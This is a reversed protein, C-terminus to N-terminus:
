EGVAKALPRRPLQVVDILGYDKAEDSSMWFDRDTDEGIREISQGTHEALLENLRQRM